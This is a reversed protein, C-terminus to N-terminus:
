SAWLFRGPRGGGAPGHWRAPASGRGPRRRRRRKGSRWAPAASVPAIEAEPRAAPPRRPAAPSPSPAASGTPGEPRGPAAAGGGGGRGGGPPSGPAPSHRPAHGPTGPAVHAPPGRGPGWFTGMLAEGASSEGPAGWHSSGWFVVGSIEGNIGGHLVAALAVENTTIGGVAALAGWSPKRM